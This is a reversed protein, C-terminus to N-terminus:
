GGCSLARGEEGNGIPSRRVKRAEVTSVYKKRNRDYSTSLIQFMDNLRENGLFTEPDIGFEHNEATLHQVAMEAMLAPSFTSFFRSSAAADTFELLAENNGAEFSVVM